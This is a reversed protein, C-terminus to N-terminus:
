TFRFTRISQYNSQGNQRITEWLECSDIRIEPLTARLLRIASHGKIGRFRGLTIHPVPDEYHFPNEGPLYTSLASHIAKSLEAFREDRHYRGWVMRPRKEPALAIDNFRITFANQRTLLTNLADCIGNFATGPINGIFYVTLHLNIDRMWKISLGANAARLQEVLTVTQAPARVALFIRRIDAGSRM